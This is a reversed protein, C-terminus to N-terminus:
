GLSLLQGQGYFPSLELSESQEQSASQGISPSPGHCSIIVIRTDQPHQSNEISTFEAISNSMGHKTSQGSPTSRGLSPSWEISASLGLPIKSVSLPKHVGNRRQIFLKGINNLDLMFQCSSLRVELILTDIVITAKRRWCFISRAPQGTCSQAWRNSTLYFINGELKILSWLSRQKM